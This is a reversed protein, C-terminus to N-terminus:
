CVVVETNNNKKSNCAISLLLSVYYVNKPLLSLWFQRCPSTQPVPVQPLVCPSVSHPPRPPLPLPPRSPWTSLHYNPHVKVVSILPKHRSATFQGSTKAVVFFSVATLNELDSYCEDSASRTYFKIFIPDCTCSKKLVMTLIFRFETKFYM